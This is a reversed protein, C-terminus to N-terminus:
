NTTSPFWYGDNNVGLFNLHLQNFSRSIFRFSFFLLGDVQFFILVFCRFWPVWVLFFCRAHQEMWDIKELWLFSLLCPFNVGGGGVWLLWDVLGLPALGGSVSWVGGEEDRERIIIKKLFCPVWSNLAEQEAWYGWILAFYLFSVTRVLIVHVSSAVAPRLAYALSCSYFSLTSRTNM